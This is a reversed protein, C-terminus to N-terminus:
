LMSKPATLPLWSTAIPKPRVSKVWPPNCIGDRDGPMM